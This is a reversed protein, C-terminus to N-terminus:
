VKLCEFSHPFLMNQESNFRRVASHLVLYSIFLAQIYSSLRFHRFVSSISVSLSFPSITRFFLPLYSYLSVGHHLFGFTWWRVWLLGGGTVTRLWDFGIWMGWAL